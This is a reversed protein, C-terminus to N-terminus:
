IQIAFTNNEFATNINSINRKYEKGHPSQNKEPHCKGRMQAVLVKM